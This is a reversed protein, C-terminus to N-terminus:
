PHGLARGGLPIFAPFRICAVILANTSGYVKVLVVLPCTHCAAQRSGKLHHEVGVPAELAEKFHVKCLM